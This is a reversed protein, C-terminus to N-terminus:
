IEPPTVNWVEGPLGEYKVVAVQDNLFTVPPNYAEVREWGAYLLLNGRPMKSDLFVNNFNNDTYWGLFRYGDVIPEPIIIPNGPESVFTLTPQGNGIVTTITYEPLDLPVVNFAILSTVTLTASGFGLTLKGILTKLVM